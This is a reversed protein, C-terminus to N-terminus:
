PQRRRLRVRSARPRPLSRLELASQFPSRTFRRRREAVPPDEDFFIERMRSVDFYLNKAVLMALHDREALTVARNLPPMLFNDLLRRRGSEAILHARLHDIGGELKGTCRVVGVGAGRLEQDLAVVEIEEFDVRPQLDLMRHGLHSESAVQHALLQSDRRAALHRLWRSRAAGRDFASDVGFIRLIVKTGGGSGHKMQANRSARTHAEVRVQRSAGFHRGPVVAQEGFEDAVASSALLRAPPQDIREALKRQETHGVVRRVQAIDYGAFLEAVRLERRM